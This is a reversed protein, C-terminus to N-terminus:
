HYYLTLIIGTISVFLLIVGLIVFFLQYDTSDPTEFEINMTGEDHSGIVKSDPEQRRNEIASDIGVGIAYFVYSAIIVVIGLGLGLPHGPTGFKLVIPLLLLNGMVVAVGCIIKKRKLM